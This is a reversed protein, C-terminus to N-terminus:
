KTERQNATRCVRADEEKYKKPRVKSIWGQSVLGQNIM